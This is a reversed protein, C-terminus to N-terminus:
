PKPRGMYEIWWGEPLTYINAPEGRRIPDCHQKWHYDRPARIVYDPLHVVAMALCLGRAIWAVPRPTAHFQFILMWALLVRPIYFYRDAYILNDAGWSDPRIRYVGVALILFFAAVIRARLERQPDPRLTLILLPVLVGIGIAAVVIGPLNLAAAAGGAPWVVLRRGLVELLPWLQFPTSQYDFPKNSHLITWAQVAACGAVVLLAALTDTNRTRWWHWAFLPAFAISFPGTLGVVGLLILDLVRQRTSTPPLFLVHQILVLATIWQANTINFLIEGTQPGLFCALAMWPKGPLPLRPSFTRAIVAVWIAFAVGNYFEPWWAVDLLRAATWATVMPILHLYGMYPELLARVGMQDVFVLFISGDEAYLQSTHLSHPKHLFLLLAIAGIVWANLVPERWWGRIAVALQRARDRVRDPTCVLEGALLVGLVGVGLVATLLTTFHPEHVHQHAAWPAALAVFLAATGGASGPAAFKAHRAFWRGALLAAVALLLVHLIWTQLIEHRLGSGSGWGRLPETVALWGGWGGADDIAILRVSEGRWDDFPVFEFWRWTEGVNEIPLRLREGTSTRELYIGNDENKPYGAVGFALRRQATFPGLTLTGRNTDTGAWSGWARAKPAVTFTGVTSYQGDPTFVGTVASSIPVQAAADERALVVGFGAAACALLAGIWGAQVLRGRWPPAARGPEPNSVMAQAPM